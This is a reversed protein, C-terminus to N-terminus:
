PTIANGSFEEGPGPFPPEMEDAAMGPYLTMFGSGANLSNTNAFVNVYIGTLAALADTSDAFLQSTTITGPSPPIQIFKRCAGLVSLCCIGVISYSYLTKKKM